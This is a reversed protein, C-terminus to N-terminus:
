DQDMSRFFAAGRKRPQSAALGHSAAVNEGRYLSPDLSYGNSPVPPRQGRVLLFFTHSFRPRGAHIIDFPFPRGNQSLMYEKAIFSPGSIIMALRTGNREVGM